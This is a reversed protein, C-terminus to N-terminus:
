LKATDLDKPQKTLFNFLAVTSPGSIYKQIIAFNETSIQHLRVDQEEEYFKELDQTINKQKIEKDSANFASDAAQKYDAERKALIKILPDLENYSKMMAYVVNESEPVAEKAKQSHLVEQICRFINIIDTNKVKM